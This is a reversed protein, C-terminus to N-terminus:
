IELHRNRHEFYGLGVERAMEGLVDAIRRDRDDSAHQYIMAANASAHGLRAM